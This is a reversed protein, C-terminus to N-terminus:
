FNEVVSGIAQVAAAVDSARCIEGLVVVGAAQTDELLHVNSANIGGILMTPWPSQATRETAEEVGIASGADQKSVTQWVPGVSLYDVAFDAGVLQSLQDATFGSVGLMADPGILERAAAVDRYTEGIHVGIAQTQGLLHPREAIILAANTDEIAKGIQNAVELYNADSAALNRYQIFDAGALATQRATEVM